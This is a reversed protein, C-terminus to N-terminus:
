DSIPQPEMRKGSVVNQTKSLRRWLSCESEQGSQCVSQIGLPLWPQGIITHLLPIKGSNNEQHIGAETQLGERELPFM